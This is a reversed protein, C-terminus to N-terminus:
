RGVSLRAALLEPLGVARMRAQTAAIDYPVRFFRVSRRATDVIAYGVRPDHDRPQGAGGANIVTPGVGLPYEEDETPNTAVLRGPAELSAVIQVHTHGVAGYPTEMLELHARAVDRKDMYEWIPDRLTGHVLTFEGERRVRPLTVLYARTAESMHDGTWAVAKAALENFDKLPALGCAAADHNGMVCLADLGALREVVADPDPGYGVLDGTVWLADNGEEAAHALIADLAALNSHVDSLLAVRVRSLTARCTLAYRIPQRYKAGHRVLVVDFDRGTILFLRAAHPLAEPASQALTVDDKQAAVQAGSLGAQRLADAAAEIAGPEHVAGREDEHVLVVAALGEVVDVEVAHLVDLFEVVEAQPVVGLAPHEHDLPGLATGVEDGAIPKHDLHAVAVDVM